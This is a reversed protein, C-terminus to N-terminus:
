RMPRYKEFQIKIKCNALKRKTLHTDFPNNTITLSPYFKIFIIVMSQIANSKHSCLSITPRGRISLIIILYNFLNIL